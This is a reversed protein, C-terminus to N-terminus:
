VRQPTSGLNGPEPNKYLTCIESYPPVRMFLVILAVFVVFPLDVALRASATSSVSKITKPLM